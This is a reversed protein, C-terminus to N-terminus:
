NNMAGADIWARILALNAASLKAQGRPMAGSNVTDYFSSGAGNGPTVRSSVATFASSQTSFSVGGQSGPDHCDSGSCYVLLINQYIETFTPPTGGDSSRSGGGGGRGASGNTGSGGGRGGGGRGASGGGRGNSGTTGGAGNGGGRGGVGAAGAMGTTGATGTTGAMGVAGAAGTTGALGATGAYGAGQVGAAGTSSGTGVDGASGEPAGATGSNGGAGTSAADGPDLSESVACGFLTLSAVAAMSLALSLRADVM